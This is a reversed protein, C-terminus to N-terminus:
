YKHIVTSKHTHAHTHTRAHVGRPLTVDYFPSQQVRPDNQLGYTHFCSRPFVRPINPAGPPAM